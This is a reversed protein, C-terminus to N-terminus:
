RLTVVIHCLTIFCNKRMSSQDKGIYLNAFIIDNFDIYVLKDATFRMVSQATESILEFPKRFVEAEDFFSKKGAAVNGGLQSGLSFFRVKLHHLQVFIFDLNALRTLLKNLSM